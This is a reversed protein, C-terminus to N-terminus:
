SSVFIVMFLCLMKINNTLIRTTAWKRQRKIQTLETEGNSKNKSQFLAWQHWKVILREHSQVSCLCLPLFESNRSTVTLNSMLKSLDWPRFWLRRASFHLCYFFTSHEIRPKEIAFTNKLSCQVWYSFQSPHHLFPLMLSVVIFGKNQNNYQHIQQECVSTNIASSWSATSYWAQSQCLNVMDARALWLDVEM